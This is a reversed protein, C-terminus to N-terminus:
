KGDEAKTSPSLIAALRLSLRASEPSQMGFLMSDADALIGMADTALEALKETRAESQELRGTLADIHGVIDLVQTMSLPGNLTHNLIQKLQEKTLEM